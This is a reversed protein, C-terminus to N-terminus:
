DHRNFHEDGLKARLTANERELERIRQELKAVRAGRPLIGLSNDKGLVWVACDNGAANQRSIGRPHHRIEGEKWLDTFRRRVTNLLNGTEEAWEDPTWGRDGAAALDILIQKKLSPLKPAVKRLAAHETPLGPSHVLPNM